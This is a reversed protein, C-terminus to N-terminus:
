GNAADTFYKSARKQEPEWLLQAALLQANIRTIPSQIQSNNRRTWFYRSAKQKSSRCVRAPKSKRSPQRDCNLSRSRTVVQRHVLPISRVLRSATFVQLRASLPFMSRVMTAM